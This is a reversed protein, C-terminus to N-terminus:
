KKSGKTGNKKHDVKKNVLVVVINLKVIYVYRLIVDSVDAFM